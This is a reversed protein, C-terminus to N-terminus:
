HIQLYIKQADWNKEGSYRIGLLYTGAPLKSFRLRHTLIFEEICFNKGPLWLPEPPHGTVPPPAVTYRKWHIYERDPNYETLTIGMELFDGFGEINADVHFCLSGTDTSLEWNTSNSRNGRSDAWIREGTFRTPTGNIRVKFNQGKRNVFDYHHAPIVACSSLYLICTLLYLYCRSSPM